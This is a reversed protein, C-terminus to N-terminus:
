KLAKMMPPTFPESYEGFSDLGNWISVNPSISFHNGIKDKM